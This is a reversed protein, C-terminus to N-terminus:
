SVPAEEPSQGSHNDLPVSGGVHGDSHGSCGRVQEFYSILKVHAVCLSKATFLQILLSPALDHFRILSIGSLKVKLLVFM